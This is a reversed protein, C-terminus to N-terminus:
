KTEMMSPLEFEPNIKHGYLIEFRDVQINSIIEKIDIESVQNLESM